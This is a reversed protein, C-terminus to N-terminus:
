YNLILVIILLLVVLINVYDTNKDIIKISRPKPPEEDESETEVFDRYNVEKNHADMTNAYSDREMSFAQNSSEFQMGPMFRGPTSRNSMQYQNMDSNLTYHRPEMVDDFSANQLTDYSPQMYIPSGLSNPTSYYVDNYFPIETIQLPFYNDMGVRYQNYKDHIYNSPSYERKPFADQGMFRKNKPLQNCIKKKPKRVPKRRKVQCKKNHM